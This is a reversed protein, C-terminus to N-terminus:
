ALKSHGARPRRSVFRHILSWGLLGVSKCTAFSLHLCLIAPSPDKRSLFTLYSSFLYLLLHTLYFLSIVSSSCFFHSFCVSLLVNKLCPSPKEMGHQGFNNGVKYSQHGKFYDYFWNKRMLDSMVFIWQQSM